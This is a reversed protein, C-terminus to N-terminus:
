IELLGAADADELLERLMRKALWDAALAGLQTSKDGNLASRVTVMGDQTKYSATYLRGKYTLEVTDMTTSWKSQLVAAVRGFFALLPLASLNADGLRSRQGIIMSLGSSAAVIIGACDRGDTSMGGVVSILVVKVAHIIENRMEIGPRV